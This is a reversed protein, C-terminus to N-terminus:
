PALLRAVKAHATRIYGTEPATPPESIFHGIMDLYSREVQKQTLELGNLVCHWIPSENRVKVTGKALAILSITDWYIGDNGSRFFNYYTDGEGDVGAIYRYQNVMRIPTKMEDLRACAEWVDKLDTALPKEILIPKGTEAFKMVHEVHQHTPTAIIVADFAFAPPIDDGVDIGIFDRDLHRLISAYRSGISGKYGM